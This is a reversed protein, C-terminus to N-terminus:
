SSTTFPILWKGVLELEKNKVIEELFEEKSQTSQYLKLRHMNVLFTVNGDDIKKVRVFRNDFVKEIEYPGLWHTYFKGKFNKFKSDFLM